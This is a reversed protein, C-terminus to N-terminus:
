FDVGFFQWRIGIYVLYLLILALGGFKTLEGGNWERGLLSGVAQKNWLYVILFAATVIQVPLDWYILPGPVAYGSIAAGIGIGMLPNTVNSGILTGLSIGEAGKKMGIVATVLEPFASVIGALVGIFSAPVGAGSALTRVVRLFIEASGLVVGMSLLGVLLDLRPRSSPESDGHRLLRDARHKYLYYMYAAFSGILLAGELRSIVGNFALLLVLVHAGIMPLYDTKIFSKQFVFRDRGGMYAAMVIVSGMIFTQQVVDSGINNALVTSSIDQRLALNAPDALIELSGLVHLSIEPLSTGISVLTTAIIVESVGVSKAVSELREVVVEAHVVLGALSTLALLVPFAAALSPFLIGAVVSVGTAVM